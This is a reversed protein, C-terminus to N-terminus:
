ALTKVAQEVDRFYLDAGVSETPHQVDSFGYGGVAMPPARNGCAERIAAICRRAAPRQQALGVSLGVLDPRTAAVAHVLADIPTDAGTFEVAYGDLEFADAVIRTGLSHQNGPVCAFLMRRGNPERAECDMLARAIVTQCVATAMQEQAVTCRGAEWLEGIRYMASEVLRVCTTTFPIGATLAGGLLWSATERDAALLADVLASAQPLWDGAREQM